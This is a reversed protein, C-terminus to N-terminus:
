AAYADRAAKLDDALSRLGTADLGDIQGRDVQQRAATLRQQLGAARARLPATARLYAAEADTPQPPLISAGTWRLVTTDALAWHTTGDTFITTNISPRFYALGTTTHQATDGSESDLHECELPAGMTDGLRDHLAAIGYVFTAAQGPQCYPVDPQAAAPWSASLQLCVVVAVSAVTLALPRRRM